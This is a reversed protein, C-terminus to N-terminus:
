CRNQELYTNLTKADSKKLSAVLPKLGTTLLQGRMFHSQRSIMLAGVACRLGDLGAACLIEQYIHDRWFLENRADQSQAGSPKSDIDDLTCVYVTQTLAERIKDRCVYGLSAVNIALLLAIMM